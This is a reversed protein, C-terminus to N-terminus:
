LRKLEEIITAGQSLDRARLEVINWPPNGNRLKDRIYRDRRLNSGVHFAASDIYIALRRKIVAFDAVSIPRGDTTPAVEVQKEPHFSHQEFLRLFKLELPSGVGAAYAELWPRPDDIDGTELPRSKPQMQALDELAPMIQPWVLHGHYRQNQYTKLCRYCATECDPHDLHEIARQAVLHFSEAVREMYGSGGLSPDIFALSLKDYRSETDGCTWPGELEFDLEGSDLMFHVSAALGQKEGAAALADLDGLRSVTTSIKERVLWEARLAKEDPGYVGLESGLLLVGGPWALDRLQEAESITAVALMEVEARQFAPLVLALGHGYADAKVAVCLKCSLPALARLVGCNHVIADLNIEAILFGQGSGSKM